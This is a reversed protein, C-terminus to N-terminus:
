DELLHNKLAYLCFPGDLLQIKPRVQRTWELLKDRVAEILEDLTETHINEENIM